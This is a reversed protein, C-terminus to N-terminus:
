LAALPIKDNTLRDGSTSEEPVASKIIKFVRTATM